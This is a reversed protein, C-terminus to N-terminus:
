LLFTAIFYKKDNEVCILYPVCPQDHIVTKSIQAYHDLSIYFSIFLIYDIIHPEKNVFLIYLRFVFYKILSLEIM